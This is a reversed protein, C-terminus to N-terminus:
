QITAARSADPGRARHDGPRRLRRPLPRRLLGALRGRRPGADAAGALRHRGLPHRARLPRRPRDDPGQRPRAPHAPRVRPRLPGADIMQWVLHSPDYNMGVDGGWAELIRRWVHPSYAINHGGPWEDASFIMPCNEFALKVGQDRAHAVIDPWVTLAAQWNADVHKAADGGCFTNVLGVGMRSAAAIVRKLHGIVPERHGADPHLPNPYYGLGSIALGREALAAVIEGAEAASLDAVDIHSTGAYRRTPGSTRPWCAIELAEFGAGARGTPSRSRAAHRPVPRHATRAEHRRGRSPAASWPWRTPRCCAPSPPPSRRASTRAPPSPRTSSPTSRSSAPSSRRRITAPATPSRPSAPPRRTRPRGSAASATPPASSSPWGPPSRSRSTPSRSAAARAARRRPQDPAAAAEALRRHRDPPLPPPHRHQAPTRPEARRLRAADIGPVPALTPCARPRRADPPRLSRAAPRRRRRLHARPRRARRSLRADVARRQPRADEAARVPHRRRRLQAGALDWPPTRGAFRTEIVWQRFPEGGVAAADRYGHDRELAALDAPTTAPVIRDVMTSPFAANADIWAALGARREALPASWAPSSPATAPSTTAASSRSRAATRRGACTSPAPSSAPCAARRRRTPSTTASTPTTPTSRAPPPATATARRPSPSPSSRSPPTPSSRSPPTPRPRPTSSRRPPLRHRPRRARRGLPPRPHLPRGPPRPNRRPRAPPPQHRRRGLPRLPGRAHRRHVRGPPLPPLRRRRYPGHRPPARSRDYGPRRVAAPLRDLSAPGLDPLGVTATVVSAGVVWQEQDILAGTMPGAADSLLFVALNAVEEPAFLRGFPAARGAAEIWGPGHGLTEAQM